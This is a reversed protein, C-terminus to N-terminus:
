LGISLSTSSIGRDHHSARDPRSSGPARFATRPRTRGPRGVAIEPKPVAPRAAPRSNAREPRDTAGALGSISAPGPDRFAAGLLIVHLELLEDVLDERGTGPGPAVNRGM